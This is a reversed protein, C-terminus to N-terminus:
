AHALSREPVAVSAQTGLAILINGDPDLRATADPPVLTTGEYEEIVLPGPRPTGNLDARGIVPTDRAGLDRGFYVRRTECPSDAARAHGPATVDRPLRGTVRLTVIEVPNGPLDYGYSRRHAESFIRQAEALDRAADLDLTLEFAQGAYRLDAARTLV